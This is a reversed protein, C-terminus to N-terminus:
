LHNLFAYAGLSVFLVISIILAWFIKLYKSKIVLNETKNILNKFNPIDKFHGYWYNVKYDQETLISKITYWLVNATVCLIFLLGFIIDNM